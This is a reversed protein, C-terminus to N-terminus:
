NKYFYKIAAAVIAKGQIKAIANWGWAFQSAALSGSHRAVSFVEYDGHGRVRDRGQLVV